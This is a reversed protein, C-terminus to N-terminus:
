RTEAAVSFCGFHLGATTENRSSAGCHGQILSLDFSGSVM